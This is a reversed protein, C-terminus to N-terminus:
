SIAIGKGGRRRMLDLLFGPFTWPAANLDMHGTRYAVMALAKHTGLGSRKLRSSLPVEDLVIHRTLGICSCNCILSGADALVDREIDLHIGLRFSSANLVPDVSLGNRRRATLGKLHEVGFVIGHDTM